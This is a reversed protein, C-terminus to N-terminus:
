NEQQAFAVSPACVNDDVRDYQNWGVENSVAVGNADKKLDNQSQVWGKSTIQLIIDRDLTKYDKRESDRIPKPANKVSCLFQNFVFKGDCQYRTQGYPSMVVQKISGDVQPTWIESWHKIVETGQQGYHQFLFGSISYKVNVYEYYEGVITTDHAGDEVFRYSVKFCGALNALPGPPGPDAAFASAGIGASMVLTLAIFINKM